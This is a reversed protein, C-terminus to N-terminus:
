GINRQVANYLKRLCPELQQFVKWGEEFYESVATGKALEAELTRDIGSADDTLVRYGEWGRRGPM